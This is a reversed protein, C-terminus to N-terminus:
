CGCKIQSDWGDGGALREWNMIQPVLQPVLRLRLEGPLIPLGVGDTLIMLAYARELAQRREQEIWPTVPGFQETLFARLASLM